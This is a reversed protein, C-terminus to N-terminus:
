CTPRYPFPRRQETQKSVSGFGRPVIFVVAVLAVAVIVPGIIQWITKHANM